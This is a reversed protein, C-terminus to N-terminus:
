SLNEITEVTTRTIKFADVHLGQSHKDIFFSSADSEADFKAIKRSKLSKQGYHVEYIITTTESSKTKAM